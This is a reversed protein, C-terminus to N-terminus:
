RLGLARFDVEPYYGTMGRMRDINESSFVEQGRGIKGKNFHTRKGSVREIVRDIGPKFDELGAFDLIKEITGATDKSLEEYSIQLYNCRNKTRFWSVFIRLVVPFVFDVVFTNKEKDTLRKWQPACQSFFLKLEVEMPSYRKSTFIDAAEESEIQSIHDKLSAMIDLINRVQLFPKIRFLNILSFVYPSMVTHSSPSFINKEPFELIARHNIETESYCGALKIIRWEDGEFLFSLMRSLWVTGSKPMSVQWLHIRAPKILKAHEEDRAWLYDYVLIDNSTYENVHEYHVSM